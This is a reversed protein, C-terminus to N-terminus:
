RVGATMESHLRKYLSIIQPDESSSPAAIQIITPSNLRNSDGNVIAGGGTDIDSQELKVIQGDPM